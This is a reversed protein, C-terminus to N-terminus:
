KIINLHIAEQVAKIRSNVDLKFLISSIHHDVTKASIFLRSAIEKNHLGEQLLQLIDLERDTLFAPNSQTTKRIGRPISKIGSRRMELKLKEYVADAGLNHVMEIAKRKDDENGEFLALAQEYPCGLQKWLDAANLASAKNHLDYGEFYEDLQLQQKGAKSLWFAFESKEYINGRTEFMSIAYNLDAQSIFSTGTIWEYELLAAVTPIVSRPEITEFAKEKAELLLPLLDSDGRRMKITSVIVLAGTKVIALQDEKKIFDNAIDYAQQWNGTEFHLRARFVMLLITYLDLDRDECYQIGEEFTKKALVYDKMKTAHLALNLYARAADEHYSNKQAIELSQRLIEIGKQRSSQILCQSTGVNNLAHCLVEEDGLEKAMEIAKIGWSISEDLNYSIVKLQSMNSLAMAKIRSSPELELTEIAQRAYTEAKERKGEFWWLRSLFRLTDGTKETDNKGKWIRLAKEQYIIAEKIQNTLYCEYAYPGYFQILTDTDNGQYYEIASLYLKAAETHAGLSVARKAAVPAYQVVLDYENANKAHHIIREIDGTQEFGERLLALIKKNLSVRKLPSLSSEITRRFLEHKFFIHGEKIFLIGFALSNEISSTYCPEFKELYKTEFSDPIVSILDWIQRTKEETRNYASLISDKISEPIGANYSALLETVYFPNGGSIAYVDKGHHGREAAMKEVAQESLPLLQLRTFSGSNLQGLVNRLPHHTHIENDRYSLIFLCRLQSIRRALFKIFDLTAEDAWHIDEFIVLSEEKRNKLERFIRTFFSTHDAIDNSKEPLKSGLQLLIDYVPALPRPAFLSDCTGLYINANDGTKRCFAKVLSTKGIGAEGSIFICHGGDEAINDFHSQLIDLFGSREILKV